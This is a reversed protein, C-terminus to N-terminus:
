ALSTHCAPVSLSINSQTHTFMNIRNKKRFDRILRALPSFKERSSRKFEGVDQARREAEQSGDQLDSDADVIDINNRRRTRNRCCSERGHGTEGGCHNPLNKRM